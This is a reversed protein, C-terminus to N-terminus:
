RCGQLIKNVDQQLNGSNTCPPPESSTKGRTKDRESQKFDRIIDGLSPSAPAPGSQTPEDRCEGGVVGNHCEPWHPTPYGAKKCALKVAESGPEEPMLYKCKDRLPIDPGAQKKTQRIPKRPRPTKAEQPTKAPRIPKLTCNTPPHSRCSVQQWPVTAPPIPRRQVFHQAPMPMTASAWDVVIEELVIPAIVADSPHAKTRTSALACLFVLVPLAVRLFGRLGLRGQRYGM